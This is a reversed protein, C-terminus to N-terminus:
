AFSFRFCLGGQCVNSYRLELHNLWEPLNPIHSLDACAATRNASVVPTRRASGPTLGALDAAKMLLTKNGLLAQLAISQLPNGSMKLDERYSFALRKSQPTLCFESISIMYRAQVRGLQKIQLDLDLFILGSPDPLGAATQTCTLTYGTLFPACRDLVLSQLEDNIFQEPIVLRGREIDEPRLYDLARFIEAKRRLLEAATKKIATDNM